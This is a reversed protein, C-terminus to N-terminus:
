KPYFSKVSARVSGEFEIWGRGELRRVLKEMVKVVGKWTYPEAWGFVREGELGELVLAAVHLAAADHADVSRQPQLWQFVALDTGEFLQRVFGATSPYPQAQPALVPGMCTASLIANLAFGAEAGRGAQEALTAPDRMAAVAQTGRRWASKRRKGPTPTYVARSSTTLVVRRVNGGRARERGERGRARASNRDNVRNLPPSGSCDTTCVTHILAAGHITADYCDPATTSPVEVLELADPGHEQSFLPLMWQARTLSRVTGRVRYHHAVLTNAIYSATLSNAATALILLRGSFYM